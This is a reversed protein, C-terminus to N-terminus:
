IPSDRRGTQHRPKQLEDYTVFRKLWEIQV